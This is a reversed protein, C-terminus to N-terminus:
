KFRKKYISMCRVFSWATYCSIKSLKSVVLAEFFIDDCQKRTKIDHIEIGNNVCYLLYDHLTAARNATHVVPPIWIWLIRPITIGDSTFGEPINIFKGSGLNDLEWVLEELLKFKVGPQKILEIKLNQTFKSM